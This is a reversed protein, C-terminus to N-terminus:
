VRVEDEAIKWKTCSMFACLGVHELTRPRVLSTVPCKEFASNGITKLGDPLTVSSLSLCWCFAMQAISIVSEPIVIETLSSCWEFTNEEIRTLKGPLTVSTLKKCFQFARADIEAVSDPITINTLSECSCFAGYGIRVVSDPIVVTHLKQRTEKYAAKAAAGPCFAWDGIATVTARGIKDPIIVSLEQGKYSTIELTGDDLKRYSWISKM